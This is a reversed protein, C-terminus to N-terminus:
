VQFGPLKVPVETTTLGVEVVNYVTKPKLAAPQESVCVILMVAFEIGTNVNVAVEFVTQKFLAVINDAVPAFEYVQFGPENVPALMVRVM